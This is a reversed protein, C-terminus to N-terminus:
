PNSNFETSPFEFPIAEESERDSQLSGTLHGQNAQLKDGQLITLPFGQGYMSLEKYFVQRAPQVTSDIVVDARITAGRDEIFSVIQARYVDGGTTIKSWLSKMKTLNVIGESYIWSAHRYRSKNNDDIKPRTTIIRQIESETLDPILALITQPAENINIRGNIITSTSTSAYDLYKLLAEPAQHSDPYPSEITNGNPLKISVGLIDLPTKLTFAARQSFDPTTTESSSTASGTTTPGYQRYYVVFNATEKNINNALEKYLFELNTNNLDIRPEGKPDLDKEASFVTLMQDWSTEKKNSDGNEQLAANNFNFSEDTGYLQLRTMDRVLLLEELFVPIANRPSYQFSKSSYWAAEAGNERTQEDPDIWDLISDARIETMGPLKMLVSRGTGPIERDWQLVAALNLRTSENVLGYRIGKIIGSDEIKPSLITFSANERAGEEVKAVPVACFFRPNDYLGGNKDRNEPTQEIMTQMVAVASRAVDTLQIEESRVTTAERETQMLSLLSIGGLALIAIIIVVVFLVLGKQRNKLYHFRRGQKQGLLSVALNFPSEQLLLFSNKGSRNMVDM